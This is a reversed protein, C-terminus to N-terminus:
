RLSALRAPELREPHRGRGDPRRVRPHGRAWWLAIDDPGALAALIDPKHSKLTDMLEVPLPRPATLVLDTGDAAIQGGAALVQGIIEAAIM